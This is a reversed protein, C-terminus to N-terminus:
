CEMQARSPHAWFEKTTSEAFENYEEVTVNLSWDLLKLFMLEHSNVANLKWFNKGIQCWSKNCYPIDELFKHATMASIFLLFHRNQPTVVIVLPDKSGGPNQRVGGKRPNSLRDLYILATMLTPVDTYKLIRAAWDRLSVPIPCTATTPDSPFTTMKDMQMVVYDLFIQTGVQADAGDIAAPDAKIYLNADTPIRPAIRAM